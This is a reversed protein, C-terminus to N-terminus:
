SEGSQSTEHKILQAFASPKEIKRILYYGMTGGAYCLLDYPDTVSDSKILPIIFEWVFAASLGILMILWFKKLEYGIQGLIIGTLALVFIPALLDNLYCRFFYGLLGACQKKLIVNNICYVLLSFGCCLVDKKNKRM